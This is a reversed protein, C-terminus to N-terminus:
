ASAFAAISVTLQRVFWFLVTVRQHVGACTPTSPFSCASAVALLAASPLSPASGDYRKSALREWRVLFVASAREQALASRIQLWVSRRRRYWGGFPPLISAARALTLFSSAPRKWWSRDPCVAM